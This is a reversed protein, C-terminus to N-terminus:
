FMLELFEAAVIQVMQPTTATRDFKPAALAVCKDDYADRVGDVVFALPGAPIVPKLVAKILLYLAARILVREAEPSDGKGTPTLGGQELRAVVKPVGAALRKGVQERGLKNGIAGPDLGVLKLLPLLQDLLPISM